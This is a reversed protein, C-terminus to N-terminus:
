KRARRKSTASPPEVTCARDLCTREVCYIVDQTDVCASVGECLACALGDQTFMNDCMSVGSPVIPCAPISAPPVYPPPPPPTACNILLFGVLVVFRTILFRVM